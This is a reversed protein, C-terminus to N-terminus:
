LGREKESFEELLRVLELLNEKLVYGWAGAQGAAEQLEPQDYNTVIIVRATPDTAKIQRTATIGDMGEMQIDMLVFDPQELKYLALVKAGDACECIEGAVRAVLSRIVGRVGANDEVILLKM